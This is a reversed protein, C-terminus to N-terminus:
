VKCPPPAPDTGVSKSPLITGASPWKPLALFAVFICLPMVHFLLREISFQLQWRLNEPTVLYVVVYGVSVALLSTAPALFSPQKLLKLDFGVAVTVCVLAIVVSWHFRIMGSARTTGWIDIAMAAWAVAVICLNRRKSLRDRDIGYVLVFLSAVLLHWNFTRVRQIFGVSFSHPQLLENELEELITGVRASSTLRKWLEAAGSTMLYNPPSFSKYLLAVLVLPLTGVALWWLSRATTASRGTLVLHLIRGVGLAVLFLNGENKTLAAMGAALGALVFLGRGGDECLDARHLLAISLLMFFALPLDAYQSVATGLFVTSSALAACSLAANWRGRSLSVAAPLLALLATTFLWVLAMPVLPVSRGVYMWGRAVSAPLLPPYDAHTQVVPDFLAKWGGVTPSNLFKAHMNWIAVADWAGHPVRFSVVGVTEVALIIFCTTVIDAASFSRGPQAAVVPQAGRRWRRVLLVVGLVATEVVIAWRSARGILVICLFSIASTLGIGLGFSSVTRLVRDSLGHLRKPWCAAVVQHGLLFPVAFSALTQALAVM